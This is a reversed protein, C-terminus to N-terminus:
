IFKSMGLLVEVYHKSDAEVVEKPIASLSELHEKAYKIAAICEQKDGPSFIYGTKKDEILEAAGGINSVIVPCLNVLSEYVVTPSNEYTMTPLILCDIEAFFSNIQDNPIRGKFTIRKDEAAWTKVMSELPGSGVIKLAIEQDNIQDFVSKLLKIGKHEVLQGIVGFTYHDQKVKAVPEKPLVIPNRLIVRKQHTFFGLKTYFDLLFLSPSVIVGPYSFLKATIKQYLRAFIGNVLSGGEEGRMMVGKRVALQIDHLVHVHKKSLIHAIFPLFYSLGILNHSIILDPNAKKVQRYLVLASHINLLDIFHWLVRVFFPYKYDNAYFFLNLPYFRSVKAGKEFSETILLSRLGKFPQATLVEVEYGLDVLEDVTRKVIIEAGGRAYPEFLNSVLLVKM